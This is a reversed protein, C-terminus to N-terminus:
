LMSKLLLTVIGEMFFKWSSFASPSTTICNPRTPFSTNVMSKLTPATTHLSALLGNVSNWANQIARM